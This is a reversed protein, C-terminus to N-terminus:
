RVALVRCHAHAIVQNAVGGMVFRDIGALGKTGIIILDVENDKAYDIISEASSSSNTIVKTAVTIGHKQALIKTENLLTESEKILANEYNEMRGGRYFSLLNWDIGMAAKDLVHIAILTANFAKALMLGNHMIKNKFGSKDVAILIKKIKYEDLNTISDDGIYREQTSEEKM